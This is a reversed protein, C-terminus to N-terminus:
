ILEEVINQVYKAISPACTLGPSDIGILNILGPLGKEEEHCIIFDRFGDQPGQLKARIGATDAALDASEIFPLFRNVARSFDEKRSGDIDYNARSREIYRADPGLRLGAGLDPTAHIGLSVEKENPVPYVLHKIMGSKNAGVRFYEGKCFKLIYNEKKIDIGALEAIIDSNLGACNILIRTFFSFDTGDADGVSVRFGRGDKEIQRVETQFVFDAGQAKAKQFFHRMLNHSDVIGTDPSYLAAPARINPEMDKVDRASLIRLGSVGNQRGNQLLRELEKLEEKESAVILKGVKKYLISDRECIEYILRNGEVCTKAKLSDKPYYIGAHIVESNRGSAEQGFSMNKELIYVAHSPKSVSASVALGIIGAGIITIDVKEM